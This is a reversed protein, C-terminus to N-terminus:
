TRSPKHRFCGGVLIESATPISIVPPYDADQQIPFPFRYSHVIRWARLPSIIKRQNACGTVIVAVRLVIIYM